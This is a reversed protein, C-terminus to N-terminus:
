HFNQPSWNSWQYPEDTLEHEHWDAGKDEAVDKGPRVRGHLQSQKHSAAGRASPGGVDPGDHEAAVEVEGDHHRCDGGERGEEHHRDPNIQESFYDNGVGWDDNRVGLYEGIANHQDNGEQHADTDPLTQGFPGINKDLDELRHSPKPNPQMNELSHPCSLFSMM